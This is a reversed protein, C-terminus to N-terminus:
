SPILETFDSTNNISLALPAHGGLLLVSVSCTSIVTRQFMDLPIGQAMAVAAKIPDAHSVVIISQGPHKEHLKNLADWIRTQMEIFSEGQPFRFTSPANQVTRWEPKKSLLALKKGTWQGFDCEIVGSNKLTRLKLAKAIPAATEQARELPSAYLVTPPKKMAAFREAVSEAQERGKPSLHLGPARGPLVIGTSTTQGHRVLFITTPKKPAM